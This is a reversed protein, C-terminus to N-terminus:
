RAPVLAVVVDGAPDPGASGRRREVVFLTGDPGAAFLSRLFPTPLITQARRLPGVLADPGVPLVVGHWDGQGDAALSRLFLGGNSDFALDVDNPHRAGLEPAFTAYPSWADRRTPDIRVIRQTSPADADRSAREFGYLHGDPGVVFSGTVTNRTTIPQESEVYARGVPNWVFARISGPADLDADLEEMLYLTGDAALAAHLLGDVADDARRSGHPRHHLVHVIGSRPDLSRFERWSAGAAHDYGDVVLFLGDRVLPPAGTAGVYGAGVVLLARLFERECALELVPEPDAGPRFAVVEQHLARTGDLTPVVVYIRGTSDVGLQPGGSFAELGQVAHRTVGTVTWTDLWGTALFGSEVAVDHPLSASILAKSQLKSCEEAALQKQDDLRDKTTSAAATNGANAYAVCADWLAVAAQWHTRCQVSPTNPVTPKAGCFSSSGGGSGGGSGGSTGSPSETDEFDECALSPMAVLCLALVLGAKRLALRLRSTLRNWNARM